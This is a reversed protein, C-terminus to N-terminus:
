PNLFNSITRSKIINGGKCIVEGDFLISAILFTNTTVLVGTGERRKDIKLEITM